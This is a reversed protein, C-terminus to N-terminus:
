AKGAGSTNRRLEDLKPKLVCDRMLHNTAMCLHCRWVYPTPNTRQQVAQVEETESDESGSSFSGDEIARATARHPRKSKTRNRKISRDKPKTSRSAPGAAPKPAAPSQHLMKAAFLRSAYRMVHYLSYPKRDLGHQYAQQQIAQQTAPNNIKSLYTKFYPHGETISSMDKYGLLALTTSFEYNFQDIQSGNKLVMTDLKNGLYYSATPPLWEEKFERLWRQWSGVPRTVKWEEAWQSASGQLYSSAYNIRQLDTFHSLLRIHHELAVTFKFISEPDSNGNYNPVPNTQLPIKLTKPIEGIELSLATPAALMYPYPAPPPLTTTRGAPRPQWPSEPDQPPALPPPPPPPPPPALNNDGAALGQPAAPSAAPPQAPNDQQYQALLQKTNHHKEKEQQLNYYYTCISTRCAQAWDRIKDLRVNLVDMITIGDADVDAAQENLALVQQRLDLCLDENTPKLADLLGTYAARMTTPVGTYVPARPLSSTTLQFFDNPSVPPLEPRKGKDSRPLPSVQQSPSPTRSRLPARYKDASLHGPEASTVITM